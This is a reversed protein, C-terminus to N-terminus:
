YNSSRKLPGSYDEIQQNFRAITQELSDLQCLLEALIFRQHPRVRGDLAEILQDRKSCKEGSSGHRHPKNGCHCATGPLNTRSTKPQRNSHTTPLDCLQPIFSPRLSDM